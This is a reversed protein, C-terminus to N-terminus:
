EEFGYVRVSCAGFDDFAFVTEGPAIVIGTREYVSGSTVTQSFEIYDANQVDTAASATSVAVRVGNTDATMQNCISINVTAPGQTANTYVPTLSSATLMVNKAIANAM